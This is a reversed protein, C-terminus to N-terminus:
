EDVAVKVEEQPTWIEAHKRILVLAARYEDGHKNSGHTKEVAAEFEKIAGSFCGANIHIGKDTIFSILYDSRSGIPGIQFFSRDGILKKDHLNAGRLDADRLDAGYLDAGCLDAGYLNAGRLYAGRLYAGRLNAGRLYADRLDAGCLYADRLDAGCLYAGRLDARAKLAMELTIKLTNEECEHAFLVSGNFRSKIEIKM